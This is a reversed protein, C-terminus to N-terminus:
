YKKPFNGAEFQPIVTKLEEVREPTCFSNGVMKAHAAHFMIGNLEHTIKDQKYVAVMHQVITNEDAPVGCVGAAGTRSWAYQLNPDWGMADPGTFGNDYHYLYVEPKIDYATMGGSGSYAGTGGSLCGASIVLLCVCMLSAIMKNM